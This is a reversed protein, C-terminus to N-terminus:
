CSDLDHGLARCFAAVLQEARERRLEDHEREGREDRREALEALVGLADAFAEAREVAGEEEEDSEAGGGDSSESDETDRPPLARRPARRRLGPWVHAHLAGRARGWGWGAGDREGVETADREGRLAVVEYRGRLAWSMLADATDATDALALRVAGRRLVSAARIERAEAIDAGENEALYIIHAQAEVEPLEEGDIVPLVRVQATYYKNVLEWVRWGAEKSVNDEIENDILESIISAAVINNSASLLIVPLNNSSM